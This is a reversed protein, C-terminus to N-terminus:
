RKAGDRGGSVQAPLTDFREKIKLISEYLSMFVLYLRPRSAERDAELCARQQELLLRELCLM